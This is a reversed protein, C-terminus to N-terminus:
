RGQVIDSLSEGGEQVDDHICCSHLPGDTDTLNYSTFTFVDDQVSMQVYLRCPHSRHIGLVKSAPTTNLKVTSSAKCKKVVNM